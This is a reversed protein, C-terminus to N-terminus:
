KKPKITKKISGMLFKSKNVDLDTFTTVVDKLMSSASRGFACAEVICGASRAHHLAPVFDGDGSVLVVVDLKPASEIIDVSIGVDWDGKKAGGYFIQLDKSRVEYGMKELAEFFSKETMSETKITYAIARILKRGKVVEKLVNSFNVKANYLNKASYYLNQVDVFVGIRQEKLVAM